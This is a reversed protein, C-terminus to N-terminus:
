SNVAKSQALVQRIYTSREVNGRKRDLTALESETLRVAVIQTRPTGVEPARGAM